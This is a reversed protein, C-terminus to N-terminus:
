QPSSTTSTTADTPTVNNVTRTATGELGARDTAVYEITHTCAVSTDCLPNTTAKQSTFSEACGAVTAGLAAIERALEKPTPAKCFSVRPAPVLDQPPTM